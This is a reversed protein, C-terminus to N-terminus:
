PLTAISLPSPVVTLTHDVKDVDMLSTDQLLAMHRLPRVDVDNKFQMEDNTGNM